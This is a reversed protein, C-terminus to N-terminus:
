PLLSIVPNEVDLGGHGHGDHFLDLFLALNPNQRISFM